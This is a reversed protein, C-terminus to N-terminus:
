YLQGCSFIPHVGVELANSWVAIGATKAGMETAALELHNALSNLFIAYLGGSTGGMSEEVSAAISVVADIVNTPSLSKSALLALIAEGGSKLTLGADGDGGITDFHTIDPEASIVSEVGLKICNLFQQADIATFIM